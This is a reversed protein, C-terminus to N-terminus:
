FHVYFNGLLHNASAVGTAYDGFYADVVVAVQVQCPSEDINGDSGSAARYFKL